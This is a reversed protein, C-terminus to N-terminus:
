KSVILSNEVRKRLHNYSGSFRKLMKERNKADKKALYAEYYVLKFPGRSKTSKSLGQNHQKIRNKLDSTFGIYLKDDKESRLLYVYYM